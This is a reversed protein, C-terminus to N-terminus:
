SADSTGDAVRPTSSTRAVGLQEFAEAVGNTFVEYDPVVDPDAVIDVNLQGTYSFVGVGVACNGQLLGIQFMEQVSAGAFSLPLQPGPMNSLVMNILRQHAMVHVVWRQQFRGNPQLPPWRRQTATHAAITRLRNSADPDSVPVPVLRVGVRNGGTEGPRRISAAVSVHMDLDPTLEGRSKLLAHAGGAVAALVVDNVKGGYEHAVVKARALDGRVFRHVRRSGVPQNWSLAPARGLRAVAWGRRVRMAAGAAVGTLRAAPSQALPTQYSAAPSPISPPRGAIIESVLAPVPTGPALDLMSSFLELAAAGDAVVHHLRLLFAVRGDALGNLLWLEWLPRTRDLAPANLECCVRLLADEDGPPPLTRTRVHDAVAFERDDEWVPRRHRGKPWVLVQHLRKTGGIREAVHRRIEEMQLDGVEDLLPRGDLLALAAIHMPMGHEEVRLNSLDLPSIREVADHRHSLPAHM